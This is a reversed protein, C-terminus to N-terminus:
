RAFASPPCFLAGKGGWFQKAMTWVAASNTCVLMGKNAHYEILVGALRPRDNRLVFAGGGSIGNLKGVNPISKGGRKAQSGNFRVTFKSDSTSSVAGLYSFPTPRLTHRANDIDWCKARAQYGFILCVEGQRVDLALHQPLRLCRRQAQPIEVLAIDHPDLASLAPQGSLQFEEPLFTYLAGYEVFQPPEAIVHHATLLFQKQASSVLVSSAIPDPREKADAEFIPKVFPYVYSAWTRNLETIDHTIAEV